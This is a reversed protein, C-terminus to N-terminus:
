QESGWLEDINKFIYSILVNMEFVDTCGIDVVCRLSLGAGAQLLYVGPCLPCRQHLCFIRWLSRDVDTTLAM